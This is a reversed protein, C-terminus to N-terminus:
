IQYQMCTVRGDYTSLTWYRRAAEMTQYIPHEEFGNGLKTPNIAMIHAYVELWTFKQSVQWPHPVSSPSPSFLSLGSDCLVHKKNKRAHNVRLREHLSFHTAVQYRSPNAVGQTSIQMCPLCTSHTPHHGCDRPGFYCIFAEYELCTPCKQSTPMQKIQSTSGHTTQIYSGIDKVYSACNSHPKKGRLGLHHKHVVQGSPNPFCNTCMNSAGHFLSFRGFIAEHSGGVKLIVSKM